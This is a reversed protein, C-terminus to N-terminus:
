VFNRSHMHTLVQAISHAYSRIEFPDLQTTQNIKNMLNMEGFELVLVKWVKNDYPVSEIVDILEVIFNFRGLTKYTGMEETAKNRNSVFKLKCKLKNGFTQTAYAIITSEDGRRYVEKLVCYNGIMVYVFFGM